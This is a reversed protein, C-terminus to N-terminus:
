FVVLMRQWLIATRCGAYGDACVPNAGLTIGREVDDREAVFQPYQRALREVAELRRSELVDPATSSSM